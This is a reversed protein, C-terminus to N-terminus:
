KIIRTQALAAAQSDPFLKITEAYAAQSEKALRMMRYCEGMQYFSEPAKNSTRYNETVTKFAALASANNALKLYSMGLWYNAEGAYIGADPSKIFDGLAKVALEYDGQIYFVRAQNFAAQPSAGLPASTEVPTGTSTNAPATPSPFEVATLIRDLTKQQKELGARIPSVESSFRDVQQSFM